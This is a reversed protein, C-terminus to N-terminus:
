NFISFAIFWVWVEVPETPCNKFSSQQVRLSLEGSVGERLLHHSRKRNGGLGNQFTM